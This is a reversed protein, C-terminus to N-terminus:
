DRIKLVTMLELVAQHTQESSGNTLTERLSPLIKTTVIEDKFEKLVSNLSRIEKLIEQYGQGQLLMGELKVLKEKIVSIKEFDGCEKLQLKLKSKERKPKGM